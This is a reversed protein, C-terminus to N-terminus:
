FTVSDNYKQLIICGFMVSVKIKKAVDIYNYLVLNMLWSYSLITTIFEQSNRNNKTLAVGDAPGHTPAQNEEKQRMKYFAASLYISKFTLTSLLVSFFADFLFCKLLLGQKMVVIIYQISFYCYCVFDKHKFFTEITSKITVNERVFYDM